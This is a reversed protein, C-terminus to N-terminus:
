PANESVKPAEVVVGLRGLAGAVDPQRPNLQISRTLYKKALEEDGKGLYYFGIQKNADPSDPAADVAQRFARLAYDDLGVQEFEWGLRLLESINITAQRLYSNAYQEGKATQGRDLFLKVLGAQAAKNGPEFGLAVNYHYEAKDWQRSRHYLRALEYHAQANEFKRDLEALLQAETKESPVTGIRDTEIAPRPGQECGWVLFPSFSLLVCLLVDTVPRTSKHEGTM